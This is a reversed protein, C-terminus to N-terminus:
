ADRRLSEVATLQPAEFVSIPTSIRQLTKSIAIRQLTDRNANTTKMECLSFTM